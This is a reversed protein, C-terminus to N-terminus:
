VYPTTPLTLHTYSVAEARRFLRIINRELPPNGRQVEPSPVSIDKAVQEKSSGTAAGIGDRGTKAGLLLIVDGPESNQRTVNEKKQAGVLAGLEMRKAEFGDHYIEDLFGAALGIENGYTSYGESAEYAIRRQPLKGERTDEYSIKPNGAGTIRM